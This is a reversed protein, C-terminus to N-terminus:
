SEWGEKSAGGGRLVTTIMKSGKRDWKGPIKRTDITKTMGKPLHSISKSTGEWHSSPPQYFPPQFSVVVYGPKPSKEEVEKEKIDWTYYEVGKHKGGGRKEGTPHKRNLPPVDGDAYSTRGRKHAIHKKGRKGMEGMECTSKSSRTGRGRTGWNKKFV